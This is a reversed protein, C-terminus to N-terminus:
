PLFFLPGFRKAFASPKPAKDCLPFEQKKQEKRERRICKLSHKTKPQCQSSISLYLQHPSSQSDPGYCTPSLEASSVHSFRPLISTRGAGPSCVETNSTCPCLSCSTRSEVDTMPYMPLETTNRSKLVSKKNSLIAFFALQIYGITQYELM